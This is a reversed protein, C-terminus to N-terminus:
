AIVPYGVVYPPMGEPHYTILSESNKKVYEDDMSRNLWLHAATCLTKCFLEVDYLYAGFALCSKIQMPGKPVFIVRDVGHPLNSSNGSHLLGCRLSYLDEPKIFSFDNEFDLNEEWWQKYDRGNSRGNDNSLSACIAPVSVAMSIAILHLGTSAALNIQNLIANLPHPIQDSM